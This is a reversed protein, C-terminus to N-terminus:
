SFEPALPLSFWFTSGEGKASDVGVHGAHLEIITRCLYLGLGLDGGTGTHVQVGKVRHFREWIVVQEEPTLGPGKDKVSLHATEGDSTLFVEIPQDAASYKIANSLYNSVVQGIRDADAIVPLVEPLHLRITRDPALYEVDDAARRVIQALNCPHMVMEMQNARIRSADLLDTIMRDQIIARERAAELPDRLDQLIQDEKGKHAMKELRRLVLQINGSIAALPTKLEHSAMSLFVDFRRNAEQLTLEVHKRETIDLHIVVAGSYQPLPTVRMLFWRQQMPSFCPYELTFSSRTGALVAQIGNGAETARESSSGQADWCVQLYNMGVGTRELCEPPCSQQAMQRWAENVACITGDPDLVAITEHLADLIDQPQHL